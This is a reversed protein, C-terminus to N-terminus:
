EKEGRSIEPTGFGNEIWLNRQGLSPRVFSRPRLESVTSPRDFTGNKYEYKPFDINNRRYFHEEKSDDPLKFLGYDSM